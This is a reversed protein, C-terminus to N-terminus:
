SEGRWIDNSSWSVLEYYGAGATAADDHLSRLRPCRAGCRLWVLVALDLFMAPTTSGQQKKKISQHDIRRERYRGEKLECKSTFEFRNMDDERGGGM